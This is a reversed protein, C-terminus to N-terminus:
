GHDPLPRLSAVRGIDLAALPRTLLVDALSVPLSLSLSVSLSLTRQIGPDAFILNMDLPLFFSSHSLSSHPQCLCSVKQLRPGPLNHITLSTAFLGLIRPALPSRGKAMTGPALLDPDKPTKCPKLPHLDLDPNQKCPNQTRASSLGEAQWHMAPFSARTHTRSPPERREKTAKTTELSFCGKHLLIHDWTLVGGERFFPLVSNESIRVHPKFEQCGTSSQLGESSSPHKWTKPGICVTAIVITIIVIIIIITGLRAIIKM